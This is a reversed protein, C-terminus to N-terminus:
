SSTEQHQTSLPTSSSDGKTLSLNSVSLSSYTSHSPSSPRSDTLDCNELINILENPSSGRSSDSGGNLSQGKNHFDLATNLDWIQLAGSSHGTIIYRSSNCSIYQNGKKACKSECFSTITTKDVSKIVCVRKGNLAMLVNLSNSEPIVKQIFVQEDNPEGYPGVHGCSRSEQITLLNFSSVSTVGPRTIIEGRFRRFEWTRVHNHESCVSILYKETIIVKTVPFRHAFLTLFLKSSYKNMHPYRVVIRILGSSTGYALECPNGNDKNDRNFYNSLSTISDSCPDSYFKTVLLDNDTIRCPLKEMDIHHITGKASGLLLISETANYSTIKEKIKQCHWNKRYFNWIGIKDEKSLAVVHSGVFFLHDVFFEFNFPEVNLVKKEDVKTYNIYYIQIFTDYAFVVYKEDETHPIGDIAIRYISHNEIIPSTFELKYGYEKTNKYLAVFHSYAVAIFDQCAKVMVVRFPDQSKKNSTISDLKSRDQFSLMPPNVLTYFLIDGCGSTDKLVLNLKRVLPLISYFEAEYFLAKLVPKELNGFIRRTRLYNLIIKFLDPDRDIFIAGNKDRASTLRDSILASFFTDPISTLTSKSTSFSTGGVNLDVIEDRSSAM